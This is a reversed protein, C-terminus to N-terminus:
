TTTISLRATAKSPCRAGSITFNAAELRRISSFFRCQDVVSPVFVPPDEANAQYNTIISRALPALIGGAISLQQGPVNNNAAHPDLMTDTIFGAKLGPTMMDELKVIAYTNIVTGESHGIFDLDVPASAPFRSAAHLISLALRPSQKIASGPDNSQAVWNYPIVSDYGEQKMEYAM